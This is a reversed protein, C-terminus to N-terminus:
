SWCDLLIWCIGQAHLLDMRLYGDMM